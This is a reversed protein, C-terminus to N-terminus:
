DGYNSPWINSFGREEIANNSLADGNNMVLRADSPVADAGGGFPAAMWESEDIGASDTEPMTFFGRVNDGLGGNLLHVEGDFGRIDNDESDIRLFPDNRQIAFDGLAEALAAFRDEDGRVLDIVAPHFAQDM